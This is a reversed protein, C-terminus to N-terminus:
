VNEKQLNPGQGRATGIDLANLHWSFIFPMSTSRYFDNYVACPIGVKFSSKVRMLQHFSIAQMGTIIQQYHTVCSSQTLSVSTDFTHSFM